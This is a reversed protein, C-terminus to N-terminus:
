NDKKINKFKVMDKYYETSGGYVSCLFELRKLFEPYVISHGVMTDDMLPRKTADDWARICIGYKYRLFHIDFIGNQTIKHITPDELVGALARWVTAEEAISWSVDYFPISVAFSPDDSLSICSVEYNMVEIDFSIQKAQRFHEIWRLAEAVSLQPDYILQRIPRVIEPVDSELKAKRLDGAIYYRSIYDGRLASAPHIAPVCKRGGLADVAQVVYGRYKTIGKLGAVAALACGGLPVLVNARVDKLEEYLQTVHQKGLDTFTAKEPHFFPSINNKIPHVKIVNTIYCDGRILGAAHLCNELVSGAPGVFPRGLRLETEGPAEGILAIKADKSGEPGVIRQESAAALNLPLFPM